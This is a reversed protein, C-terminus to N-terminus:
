LVCAGLTSGNKLHAPISPAAVTITKKGKHCIEVKEQGNNGGYGASATNAFLSGASTTGLLAFMALLGAIVIGGVIQTNQIM